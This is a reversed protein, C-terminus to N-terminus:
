NCFASSITAWSPFPVWDTAAARPRTAASCFKLGKLTSMGDMHLSGVKGVVRARRPMTGNTSGATPPEVSSFALWAVDRVAGNSAVPSLTASTMTAWPNEFKVVSSRAPLLPVGPLAATAAEADMSVAEEVAAAATATADADAVATAVVGQAVVMTVTVTAAVAAAEDTGHELAAAIADLLMKAVDAAAAAALLVAATEDLLEVPTVGDV